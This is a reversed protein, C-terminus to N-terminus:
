PWRSDDDEPHDGHAMDSLCWAFFIALGLGVIGVGWPIASM